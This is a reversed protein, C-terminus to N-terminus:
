GRSAPRPKRRRRRIVFMGALLGPGGSGIAAVLGCSRNVGGCAACGGACPWAPNPPTLADKAEIAEARIQIRKAFGVPIRMHYVNESVKDAGDIVYRTGSLTNEHSLFVTFATMPQYARGKGLPQYYPYIELTSVVGAAATSGLTKVADHVLASAPNNGGKNQSLAINLLNNVREFDAKPMVQMARRIQEIRPDGNGGQSGSGSGGGEVAFPTRQLRDSIAQIQVPPIRNLDDLYPQAIRAASDVARSQVLSIGTSTPPVSAPFNRPMVLLYIDQYQQGPAKPLERADILAERSLVSMQGFTMNNWTSQKVFNVAKPPTTATTLQGTLEVLICQDFQYLPSVCPGGTSAQVGTGSKVDCQAGAATCDCGPNCMGGPPTLGYKCYESDKLGGTGTDDGITWNVWIAGKGNTTGVKAPIVMGGCPPPTGGTCVGNKAPRLDKWTGTDSPVSWPASGWGALRFRGQIVANIPVSTTNEPQALLVNLGGALIEDTPTQSSFFALDTGTPKFLAGVDNHDITIGGDCNSPVTAGPTLEALGSYNDPSCLPCGPDVAGLEQHVLFDFLSSTPSTCISTTLNDPWFAVNAYNDTPLKQTIEYWMTANREIGASLPQGSAVIPIRVQVAWRNAQLPVQTIDLKWYRVADDSSTCFGDINCYSNPDAATCAPDATCSTGTPKTMWTIPPDNVTAGTLREFQHGSPCDGPATPTFTHGFDAFVRWYDKGTGSSEACSSSQACHIPAITSHTAATGNLHFQFIYGFETNGGANAVPTVRRFGLFLDRPATADELDVIFSMYLYDQGGTTAVVARTQLPPTASGVEFGQGTAGLWRPDDLLQDVPTGPASGSSWNLWTPPGERTPVGSANPVCVEHLPAAAAPAAAVLLLAAVTRTKIM